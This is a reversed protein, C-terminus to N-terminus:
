TYIDNITNNNGEIYLKGSELFTSGSYNPDLNGNGNTQSYIRYTYYGENLQTDASININFKTYRWSEVVSNYITTSTYQTLDNEFYFLYEPTTSSFTTPLEERLSLAVVNDSNKVLYIM